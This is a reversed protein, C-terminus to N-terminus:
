WPRSRMRIAKKKNLYKAGRSSNCKACCPYLKGVWLEPSPFSALPPEHDITDAINLRCYHCIPNSELMKKRIRRYVSSYRRSNLSQGM